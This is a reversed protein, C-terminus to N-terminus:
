IKNVVDVCLCEIVSSNVALEDRVKCSLSELLFICLGGGRLNKRAQDLSVYGSIQFNSNSTEHPQNIM